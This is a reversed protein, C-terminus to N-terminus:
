SLRSLPSAKTSIRAWSRGHLLNRVIKAALRSKTTPFISCSMRFLTFLAFKSFENAAPAFSATTVGTHAAACVDTDHAINQM